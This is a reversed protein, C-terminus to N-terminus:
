PGARPASFWDERRLVYTIYKAQTGHPTDLMEVRDTLVAGLKEVARRSRWNTEGVRYVITSAFGFAHEMMLTKKERNAPGGWYARTLFSWGIEAEDALCFETSYRSHGIVDGTQADRVCLGGRSALSEEFFATFVDRQWRTHMPHLEWILPDSAAAFLADFDDRRLPALAVIKGNLVPQFEARTEAVVSM